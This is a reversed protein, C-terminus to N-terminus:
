PKHSLIESLENLVNGVFPIPFAGLALIIIMFLTPILVSHLDEKESAIDLPVDKKQFMPLFINAMSMFIVTLFLLVFAAVYEHGQNFAAKLIIFKSIFMAFPPMGTIAFFGAIWLSGSWPITNSLGSIDNITKTRYKTLINGAVLFLVSKTLSHNLAHFLSGFIANGGIGIGLSLIGMHEISSFALMRKFDIQKILFIAALLISLVGFFLFIDQVFDILGAASCIQYIRLLGLFACNLLAGSLLASIMSPAESHADPLWTHFPVLGMKTGYGVFFFLFSAKLWMLNLNPGVKVWEKILFPTNENPNAVVLLLNGLLALAIGVSCILLYKWAAELSRPERHYCILPTTILTTAEMAVWLLGLHQASTSITMTALFLLLCGTFAAEPINNFVFVEDPRSAAQEERKLYNIGYVASAFFLLSAITLFFAGVPDLEFWHDADTSRPMKWYLAMLGLHLLATAVLLARRVRNNTIFFSVLGAASPISILLLVLLQGTM